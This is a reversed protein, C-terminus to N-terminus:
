LQVQAEIGQGKYWIEEEWEGVGVGVVAEADLKLTGHLAQKVAEYGVSGLSWEVPLLPSTTAGPNVAFPLDYIIKGIPETHNYLATANVRTIYLTSRPLPSLLTFSAKSYLFHFTADDIFRPGKKEKQGDDDDSDDPHNPNKPVKLEPTPVELHITSLAAGLRPNNPITGEHTRITITTNYGSIYQSLLERGVAAGETGNYSLPNWIARVLIDYNPGPRVTVNKAIGEGLLTGNTLLHLNIYPVTASYNTPNTINVKAEIFLSSKTTDLIRLSGVKPEFGKLNGGAIPKIPVKGEAPLERVVFKGLATETEVDVKAKVGLIISKGGFLLDQVLESFLDDNTIQLPADKVASQVLLTAQLDDRAEVRTSNAKQWNHLDLKGLKKEHYYVDADARVRDVDVPFNMEKPLNVAANVTASIKPQGEPTDPDALPNPLGLHVQDLGFNQILGDFSHGPFPLPVVVNKILDTIWTPTNVSTKKSGRVFITTDMGSIYGGLLIDLPSKGTNPCVTTVAEPLKLVRGSVEVFVHEKPSIEIDKTSANALAIYQDTPACNPVLIDFALPPVTFTVPYNNFLTLSVDAAMFKESNPEDIEHFNLKTINYKPIVPMEKGKFVLSQRIDQTGLSFLGSKLGVKAEGTVILQSLRGDIWDNAIRRIGDLNGAKLDTIFDVHTTHGNRIDVVISPVLATGLLLDDYEPLFVEVKSPRSEVKRAIWTGLRGLDRTPKKHVRLADLSFDGQVRARVGDSTLSDISLDTPEFVMAEKAYEEVVAPAAFGLALITVLVLSLMTLAVITPWRYTRKESPEDPPSHLSRAAPSPPQGNAPADGYDHEGDAHERSLLPTSEDSHVSLISRKSRSSANSRQSRPRNSAVTDGELEGGHHSSRSSESM